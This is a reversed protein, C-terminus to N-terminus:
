ARTTSAEKIAEAVESATTVPALCITGSCVIARDERGERNVVAYPHALIAAQALAPSGTSVTIEHPLRDLARAFTAAMLGYSKPLAAVSELARRARDRYPLSPHGKSLALEILGIAAISNEALPKIPERLRGLEDGGSRDFYGGLNADGFREELGDAIDTAVDILEEGFGAEFSRITALLLWAYDGLQGDVGRAHIVGEGRRYSHDLLSGM